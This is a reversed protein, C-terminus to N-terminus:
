GEHGTFEVLFGFSGATMTANASSTGGATFACFYLDIDGQPLAAAGQTQGAFGQGEPPGLSALQTSGAVGNGPGVQYGTLQGRIAGATTIANAGAAFTATGPVYVNGTTPSTITGITWLTTPQPSALTNFAQANAYFLGVATFPTTGGFTPTTYCYIEVNQIWAGGPITGVLIGGTNGTLIGTTAVHAAGPTLMTMTRPEPVNPPTQTGPIPPLTLVSNWSLSGLGTVPPGGTAQTVPDNPGGRQIYHKVQWPFIRAGTGPSNTVM